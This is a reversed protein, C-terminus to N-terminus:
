TTQNFKGVPQLPNPYKALYMSGLKSSAYDTIHGFDRYVPVGDIDARCLGEPCLVKMPDILIMRPYKQQMKAFLTDFWREREDFFTFSCENPDYKRRQKIHKFFCDHLNDMTSATSKLIVPRAGSDTIRQLANDLAMAIRRKALPESRADKLQNIIHNGLYNRWVQGLFVFDYHNQKILTFYRATEESCEQYISNSFYWWDYLLIGPLTICSSTAQAVLSVNAQKALTDMFNWYHNSYSDGIMFGKKAEPNSSGLVCRTNMDGGKKGICQPRNPSKYKNLQAYIRVLEENFRTPFGENKKVLYTFLHTTTLPIFLLCILTYGPKIRNFKRAPKEIFRWSFYALIFSLLFIALTLLLNLEINQYRLIAFLPWHWIYLSYSILGIFVFPKTSLFGTVISKPQYNGAAILVACALCVLLAYGNPFGPSINDQSAIYVLSFLALISAGEVVYRNIKVRLTSLAVSSGIFFEVLRSTLQFYTKEPHTLSYYLTLCFFVLTLFYVMKALHKGSLKHLLYLLLPLILYCQWELSLSWLHLLVMESSNHAFYDTTVKSFFNNALFLSSKRASNAFLLLDDPLYFFLTLFTTFLLLCLLVPQLRWLRRNYFDTFSFSHNGLANHIIQTILFGSIVFFIDVGIFGSPLAKLGSHFILVLLIAIARLGDIDPRYKM